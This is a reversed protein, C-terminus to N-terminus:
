TKVEELEHHSCAKVRAILRMAAAHNAAPLACGDLLGDDPVADPWVCLGGGCTRGNGVGVAVCDPVEIGNMKVTTRELRAAAKAGGFWFALPGLRRKVDGEIAEDVEVPFGGMCANVFLREVGRGRARSVDVLREDGELILRAAERADLPLGLTRALDNGTGMPVLGFVFRDLEHGLANITCNFTGDGGAVVVFAADDAAARVEDDFAGRSPPAVTAVDGLGRIAGELGEITDEDSGGSTPNTVLLVGSM